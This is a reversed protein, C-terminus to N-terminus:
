NHYENWRIVKWTTDTPSASDPTKPVFKFEILENTTVVKYSTPTDNIEIIATTTQMTAWPADSADTYRILGNGLDFTVSVISSHRYLSGMHHMEDDRTFMLTGSAPDTQDISQGSYAPDFLSTYEVSDRRQYALKM